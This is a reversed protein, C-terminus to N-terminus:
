KKGSKVEKLLKFEKSTLLIYIMLPLIIWELIQYRFLAAPAVFLIAYHIFIMAIPLLYKKLQKLHLLRLITAVFVLFVTAMSFFINLIPTKWYIGNKIDSAISENIRPFVSHREISEYKKSYKKAELMNYEIVSHWMQSDQYSKNVYWYGINNQLFAEVYNGKCYSFAKFYLKLFRTRDAKYLKTDLNNKQYDAVRQNIKYIDLNIKPYFENYEEKVEKPLNQNYVVCRTLQQSPISMKETTSKVDKIGVSSLVASYLFFLVVSIGFIGALKWNKMILTVLAVFIVIYVGTNRSLCVALALLFMGLLRIKNKMIKEQNESLNLLSLFLLGGSLALFVDQSTSAMMILVLPSSFVLITFLSLLPKKIKQIKKFILFEVIVGISMQLFTYIALGIEPSHFINKGFMVLNSLVFSHVVAFSQNPQVGVNAFELIQFGADYGYVGPFMVLFAFLNVIILIILAKKDTLFNGIKTASHILKIKKNETFFLRAFPYLVLTLLLILWLTGLKWFIILFNDLQSGLVLTTAIFFSLLLSFGFMRKDCKAFKNKIWNLRKKRMLDLSIKLEKM